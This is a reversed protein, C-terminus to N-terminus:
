TAAAMAALLPLSAPYPMNPPQNYAMVWDRPNLAAGNRNSSPGMALHEGVMLGSIGADEAIRAYDMFRRLDRADTM